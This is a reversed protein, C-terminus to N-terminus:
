GFFPLSVFRLRLWDKVQLCVEGSYVGRGAGGEWDGVELKRVRKHPQKFQNSVINELAQRLPAVVALTCIKLCPTLTHAAKQVGGGM